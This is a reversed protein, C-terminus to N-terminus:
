RLSWVIGNLPDARVANFQGQLDNLAFTTRQGSAYDNGINNIQIQLNQLRGEVKVASAYDNAIGHVLQQTEHLQWYLFGCIGALLFWGVVTGLVFVVRM